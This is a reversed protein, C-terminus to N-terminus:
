MAEIKMYRVLDSPATKMFSMWEKVTQKQGAMIQVMLGPLEDQLTGENSMALIDNYRRAEMTMKYAMRAVYLAALAAIAGWVNKKNM